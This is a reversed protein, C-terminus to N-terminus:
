RGAARGTPPCPGTAARRRCRTGPATRGGPSSGPNRISSPSHFEDGQGGVGVDLGGHDDGVLPPQRRRHQQLSPAASAGDSAAPRRAVPPHGGVDHRGSNMGSALSGSPRSRCPRCAPEAVRRPDPGVPPPTHRAACGTPARRRRPRTAPAGPPGPRPRRCSRRAPRRSSGPPDGRDPQQAVGPM